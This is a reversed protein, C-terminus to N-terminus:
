LFPLFPFIFHPTYILTYYLFIFYLLAAFSVYPSVFYSHVDAFLTFLFTLWLLTSFSTFSINISAFFVSYYLLIINKVIDIDIYITSIVNRYLFM